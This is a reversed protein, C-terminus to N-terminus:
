PEDDAAGAVVVGPTRVIVRQRKADFRVTSAFTSAITADAVMVRGRVTFPAHALSVTRGNLVASRTGAHMTLVDTGRRVVIAGTARDFTTQAGAADAVTRLPLYTGNPATVPPVDSALRQGDVSITAPTSLALAVSAVLATALTAAILRGGPVLAKFASFLPRSV